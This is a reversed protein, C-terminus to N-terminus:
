KEKNEKRKKRITENVNEREEDRCERYRKRTQGGKKSAKLKIRILAKVPYHDSEINAATDSEADKVTNRWRRSTMIFDIQEYKGRTLEEERKVGLERHTVIKEKRKRYQTNLLILENEKCMGILMRRNETTGDRLQAINTNEPEFTHPGIIRQERNSNAKQIRANM